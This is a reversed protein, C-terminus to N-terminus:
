VIFGVAPWGSSGVEASCGLTMSVLLWCGVGDGAAEIGETEQWGKAVVALM